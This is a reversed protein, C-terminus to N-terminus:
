YAVLCDDFVIDIDQDDAGAKAPRTRCEFGSIPALVLFDDNGFLGVDITGARDGLAQIRDVAVHAGAEAFVIRLIV